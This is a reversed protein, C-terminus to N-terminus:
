REGLLPSKPNGDAAMGLRLEDCSTAQLGPRRLAGDLSPEVTTHESSRARWHAAEDAVGGYWSQSRSSHM